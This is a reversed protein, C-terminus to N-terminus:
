WGRMAGVGGREVSFKYSVVGKGKVEEGGGEVVMEHGRGAGVEEGQEQEKEEEGGGEGGGVAKVVPEFNAGGVEDDEAVGTFAFGAADGGLELLDAFDEVGGEGAKAIIEALGDEDEGEFVFVRELGEEGGKPLGFAVHMGGAEVNGAFLAIEDDNAGVDLALIGVFDDIVFIGVCEEAEIEAIQGEPHVFAEGFEEAVSLDAIFFNLEAVNRASVQFDKAGVFEDRDFSKKLDVFVRGIVVFLIASGDKIRLGPGDDV